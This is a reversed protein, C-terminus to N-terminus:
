LEAICFKPDVGKVLEYGTWVFIFRPFVERRKGALAQYGISEFRDEIVEDRKMFGEVLADVDFNRRVENIDAQLDAKAKPEM